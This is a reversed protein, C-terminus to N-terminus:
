PAGERAERREDAAIVRSIGAVLLAGGGIPALLGPFDGQVVKVVAVAILALGGIIMLVGWSRRSM